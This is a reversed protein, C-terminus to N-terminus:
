RRRGAKKDEPFPIPGATGVVDDLPIGAKEFAEEMADDLAIWQEWTLQNEVYWIFEHAVTRDEPWDEFCADLTKFHKTTKM